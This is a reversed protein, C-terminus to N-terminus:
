LPIYEAWFIRPAASNYAYYVYIIGTNPDYHCEKSPDKPDGEFADTRTPFTLDVSNDPNITIYVKDSTWVGLWEDCTTADVTSLTVEGDRTTYPSDPYTGGATPHFYSLKRRYQGAFFNKVGIACYQTGYNGSILVDPNDTGTISFAIMYKDEIAIGATKLNVTFEAERQGAPITVQGQTVDLKSTSLLQFGSTPNDTIYENVAAEDIQFTVVLDKKLQWPSSLNIRFAAPFAKTPDNTMEFSRRIYGASNPLENFDVIYPSGAFDEVQIDVM